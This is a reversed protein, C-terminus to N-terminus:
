RHGTLATPLATGYRRFCLCGVGSCGCVRAVTWRQAWKM